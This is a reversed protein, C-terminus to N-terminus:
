NSSNQLVAVLPTTLLGAVPILDKFLRRAQSTGVVVVDNAYVEPDAYNGRRIGRLDYVGVMQQGEVTRFILVESTRALDTIGQATAVARMLTMRGIVPYLGPMKVEGDVTIVQSVTEKLNVTVNPNRVYRGALRLEIIRAIEGPTKGAAEVVGALPMSIRGSADTQVESDLDEVGFVKITLKDYPGILYPRELSYQDSRAPAPLEGESVAHVSTGNGIIKSGSTAACGALLALSLPVLVLRILNMFM